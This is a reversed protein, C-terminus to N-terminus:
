KLEIKKPSRASRYAYDAADKAASIERTLSTSNYNHLRGLTSAVTILAHHLAAAQAATVNTTEICIRHVKRRPKTESADSTPTAASEVETRTYIRGIGHDALDIHIGARKAADLIDLRELLAAKGDTSSDLDGGKALGWAAGRALEALEQAATDDKTTTLAASIIARLARARGIGERTAYADVKALLDEGLRVNIPQGIEPRGAPTM